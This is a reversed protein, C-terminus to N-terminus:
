EHENAATAKDKLENAAATDPNESRMMLTEWERYVASLELDVVEYRNALENMKQFERGGLQQMESSVRDREAELQHIQQEMALLQKQLRAREHKSISKGPQAAAPEAERRGVTEAEPASLTAAREAGRRAEFSELDPFRELRRDRLLLIESDLQGLFYRDHSVVFLTGAFEQLAAELVERAPIDLHNTPEDLLLVHAPHWLMKALAVRSREGGSLIEIRKFIDDGRFLFGALYRRLTGETADPAVDQLEQLVTKGPDLNAQTQSLYSWTLNDARHLRGALPPIDGLLTRLLTTKGVGNSGVVGFRSGRYVVLDIGEILPADNYGAALHECQLVQRAAGAAERVELRLSDSAEVAAVRELKELMKRRSKAQKTKQGAINRRIFEETREIKEQQRRHATAQQENQLDRERRYFSYNGSFHRLGLNHVEATKQTVQDLFFRDHSVVIVASRIEKVYGELWEIADIDLHNTPEDLMLLDPQLLLAQALKLRSQQGGSLHTLPWHLAERSFGLGQLVSETLSRFRYGGELRFREILHSYEDSVEGVRRSDQSMVKQIDLIRHEMQILPNFVTLAQTIVTQNSVAAVQFEAQEVHAIALNRKRIIRGRDPTVKGSILELLTTKGAGNPGVLAIRDSAHLTWDLSDFLLREGFGKQIGELRLLMTQTYYM